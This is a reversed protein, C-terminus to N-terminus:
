LSGLIFSLLLFNQQLTIWYHDFFGTIAAALFILVWTKAFKILNKKFIIIQLFGMVIGVQAFYLLFINHVPQNIFDAFKTTFASQAVLYNGIGVGFVPHAIIIAAANKTLELRKGITSPDTKAQFFILALLSFTIIRSLFCFLCKKALKTKFAYFLNIVIFSLIAIKSFSLFILTSSMFLFFMKLFPSIIKKNELFFAYLLLYFGGMSNPHSFTGYPRLFEVGALAAKAVNPNSLSIFREGLFYFIGQISHKLIFQLIVLIIEFFSGIFFAFFILYSSIIKKRAVAIIGIFEVIKLLRYLSIPKSIAFFMNILLFILLLLIKKNKFFNIISKFNFILIAVTLIDTLYVTPALYDVRVGSLYSFPFFFHKGLQTPLFLIFLFLLIKNFFLQNHSKQRKNHSKM